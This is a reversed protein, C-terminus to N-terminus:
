CGIQNRAQWIIKQVVSTPDFVPPSGELAALLGKLALTLIFACVSACVHVCVRPRAHASAQWGCVSVHLGRQTEIAFIEHSMQRLIQVVSFPLLPSIFVLSLLEFLLPHIICLLSSLSRSDYFFLSSSDASPSHTNFYHHLSLM